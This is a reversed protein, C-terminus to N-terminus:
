RLIITFPRPAPARASHRPQPSGRSVVKVLNWESADCPSDLLLRTSDEDITAQTRGAGNRIRWHARGGCGSGPACAEVLTRCDVLKWEGCDWGVLLREEDPSLVGDGDADVGFVVEANNVAAAAFDMRLYIKESCGNTAAFPAYAVAESDALGPQSMSSVAFGDAFLSSAFLAFAACALLIRMNHRGM